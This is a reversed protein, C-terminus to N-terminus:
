SMSYAISSHRSWSQSTKYGAECSAVYILRAAPSNDLFWPGSATKLTGKRHSPSARATRVRSRSDPLGKVRSSISTIRNAVLGERLSRIIPIGGGVSAEFNIDVGHRHAVKFIEDGHVALLAKNATVVHKKQEFAKLIFTRAPEYGGILEVVIDIAPDNVVQRWDTTLYEAPLTVSRKRELDIDSVKVLELGAVGKQYLFEVVGSGINGFGVVAVKKTVVM